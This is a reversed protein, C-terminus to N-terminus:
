RGCSCRRRDATPPRSWRSTRLCARNGATRGSTASQDLLIADVNEVSRGGRDARQDALALLPGVRVIQRAQPQQTRHALRDIRRRPFPIVAHDALIAARDDVGPPLGLGTRDHNRRHRARHGGFGPEAVSGSGPTIGSITSKFPLGTPSSLSPYRIMRRGHGLMARVCRPRDPAICPAISSGPEPLM